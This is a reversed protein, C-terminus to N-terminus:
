PHTRQAETLPPATQLRHRAAFTTGLPAPDPIRAVGPARSRRRGGPVDRGDPILGFVADPPAAIASELKHGSM